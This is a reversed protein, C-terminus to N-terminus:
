HIWIIYQIRQMAFSQFVVIILQRAYRFQCIYNREVPVASRISHYCCAFTPCFTVALAYMLYLVHSLIQSDPTSWTLVILIIPCFCNCCAPLRLILLPKKFSRSHCCHSTPQHSADSAARSVALLLLLLLLLM